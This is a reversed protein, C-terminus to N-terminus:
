FRPYFGTTQWHIQHGSEMYLLRVVNLYQRISSFSLKHSLFAIYRGLDTPSIPMPSINLYSCCELFLGLQSSYTRRTSEAFTLARLIAVESDLSAM